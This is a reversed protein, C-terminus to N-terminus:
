LDKMLKKIYLGLNTDNDKLGLKKRVDSSIHYHRKIQIYEGVEKGLLGIAYLCVYNLEAETLGRSDLYKMFKPHSAWFALRTSNIFQDKDATVESVWKHYQESYSNDATIHAAFLGNLMGMREQIADLIPQSLEAKKLLNRLSESEDELQSIRLCMNENALLQKERELKSSKSELELVKNKAQLNDNALQLRTQEKESLIRKTKGIRYQYYVVGTILIFVLSMCLGLWIQKDKRQLSYLHNIKLEHLEQAVTTKQSYIKSNESEVKSHFDKYAELAELYEKTAEFVRPKASMYRFSSAYPSNPSILEFIQKAKDPENRKLYALTIDLKTEDDYQTYDALSDLLNGIVDDSDFRIGYTMKVRVNTGDLEPHMQELSDAISMLSDSKIKNGLSICGDLARVISSFERRSDGIERYLRAARLNNSVYNETQCSKAYLYGQAVMLNAYTISDVCENKFDEAKLFSQMANDFDSQNLYIIGQYYLTRMQEDATGHKLYFDIAPQLVDFTTTDIYNKDLAISMLLAYRAKEDDDGLRSKDISLLITYASDPHSNLLADAKDMTEWASTKHGCSILVSLFPLALILLLLLILKKMYGNKGYTM